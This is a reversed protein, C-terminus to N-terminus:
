KMSFNAKITYKMPYQLVLLSNFREHLEKLVTVTRLVQHEPQCSFAIAADISAVGSLKLLLGVVYPPLIEVRGSGELDIYGIFLPLGNSLTEGFRMRLHKHDCLLADEQQHNM